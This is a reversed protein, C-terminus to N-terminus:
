FEEIVAESGLNFQAPANNLIENLTILIPFITKECGRGKLFYLYLYFKVSCFSNSKQKIEVIVPVAVTQPCSAQFGTVDVKKM